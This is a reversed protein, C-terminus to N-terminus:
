EPIRPLPIEAGDAGRIENRIDESVDRIIAILPGLCPEVRLPRAGTPNTVWRKVRKIPALHLKLSIAKQTFLLVRLRVRSEYVQYATAIDDAV